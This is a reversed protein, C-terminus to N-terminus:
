TLRDHEAGIDVDAHCATTAPRRGGPSAGRGEGNSPPAAVVSLSGPCLPQSAPLRCMFFCYSFSKVNLDAGQEREDAINGM